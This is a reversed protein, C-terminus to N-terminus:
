ARMRELVFLNWLAGHVGSAPLGPEEFGLDWWWSFLAPFLVLFQRDARSRSSHLISKTTVLPVEDPSIWHIEGCLHIPVDLAPPLYAASHFTLFFVFLCSYLM